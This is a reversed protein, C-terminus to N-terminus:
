GGPGTVTLEVRRELMRGDETCIAGDDACDETVPLVITVNGDSDPGTTIHWRVNSSRDVRKAKLISGGTVTFAHDRLTRYSLDFEESFRLEFTFANQGDHSEPRDQISATLLPPAVEATAASTLTEENGGDDTYSVRVRVSTGEDDPTPTYTSDTAGAIVTDAGGDTSLWQYSFAAATLGDADAIGSTDVTLTEGVHVAGNITPAGSAPRNGVTPAARIEVPESPEQASNVSDVGKVRYVYLVGPEVDTDTYNTPGSETFRVHVIPETEGREPRNRLIQYTSTYPWGAALRWTLVVAGDSATAALGYPRDLHALPSTLSEEYGADDTFSARVVFAKGEDSSDLTYTSATAGPIDAYANGDYSVWQYTYAVGTLGDADAIGSTDAVLTEGVEVTGTIAPAGTAPSNPPPTRIEIPESADRPAALFDAGKVRYAYLVGPEVDTDTYTTQGSTVRTLRRVPIVEGLEPRTRLIYYYDTYGWDQPLEWTLVVDGDSAAATLTHPRETRAESTLTETKGADDRFSVRVKIAMGADAAVPTYTPGTAGDIDTDQILDNSVWQYAFSEATVGDPDSIGSTDVSLTTGVEVEGSIAPVGTPPSNPRAPVVLEMPNFLRRGDSSCIAGAQDCDRGAAIRITVPAWGGPTVSIAWTRGTGDVAGVRSVAGGTVKLVHDRLERATTTVGDSFYARLSIDEVGDHETPFYRFTGTVPPQPRDGLPLQPHITLSVAVPDDGRWDPPASPWWYAGASAATASTRSESGHYAADGVRLTFDVPLERSMGLWLGKSAHALLHVQYVDGDFEFQNPTLTGGLQGLTSYGSVAPATASDLGATLEGNLVAEGAAIGVAPTAISTTSEEVGAGDTFTVRVRVRRGEDDWGLTYSAGTAGEIDAEETAYQRVWQYSFGASGLGDEDTIGSTDAILREGVRATGTITPVGAAPVNVLVEPDSSVSEPFGHRDVFSVRVGINTGTDDPTLSYSAGTAGEIDSVPAGESRTWQYHFTVRELGNDDGIGSVDAMLTEGIVPTGSIAPVGTAASNVPEPVDTWALPGGTSPVLVHQSWESVGHPGLARVRFRFPELPLDKVIAGAGYFAIGTDSTPLDEWQAPLSSEQPVRSFQVDYSDARDIDSWALDVIGSWLATATLGSPTAPPPAKVTHELRNSLRYGDGTCIAGVVSCHRNEALVLTIDQLPRDPTVDIEWHDDRTDVRVTRAVRGGDVSVAFQGFERFSIDIDDSFRVRLTFTSGDHSAPADEFAGTLAVGGSGLDPPPDSFVWPRAQKIALVNDATIKFEIEMAFREGEEVEYPDAFREHIAALRGRLQALQDATMLLQGPAVQNSLAIVTYSGDPYLLVEEPESHAEPNTVLDEGRQSNVYFAGEAGYAPDVSVAVGNVPEDSYNPHVLVGMAAALHDIRHFDREIFARYNWLSAFVQKLSKSIGDEETEEPHQTKSDYLGAGNFGPLDENNTSSRYRLSTGEPFTAHMETLATEIWAPTEAKKIKKRLKKLEDEKTEYDTQFDPDALMEEIDDYLDNHKMFEDYFYFPVAFGDPVTGTPFELTGLVAVNAAKVGFSDWDDFGVGSLATITTVTLDREPTQTETPRSSAHFADVEAQTAARISYGTDSVAYYVHSGILESIDADDLADAIYANPVGEQTARLNVHSLPTQPVTSIIGAVRPLENPLAAYIVVDRPHPREDAGLSRLLGYGEGPNLALFGADGNVDEDFILHARFTEGSQLEEQIEPLKRAVIWLALNDNLVPMSAAVLTHARDWREVSARGEITYRYVGRSGDAAVLEPDYTLSGRIPRDGLESMLTHFRTRKTDQFLVIPQDQNADAIIFKLYGLGSSGVYALREYTQHDPITSVSDDRNLRDAPNVPSMSAAALETIDDICDGDVDAPNDISFKEVRYREVPLAAVNEALTTTGAEGLAVRVPYWETEGDVEHSAYLVFYDATTSTVVM